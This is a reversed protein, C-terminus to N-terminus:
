DIKKFILKSFQILFILYVFSVRGPCLPSSDRGERGGEGSTPITPTPICTTVHAPIWPWSLSTPGIGPKIRATLTLTACICSAAAPKENSSSLFMVQGLSMFFLPNSLHNGTSENNVEEELM